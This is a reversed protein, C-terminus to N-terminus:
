FRRRVSPWLGSGESHGVISMALSTACALVVIGEKLLHRHGFFYDLAITRRRMIFEYHEDTQPPRLTPNSFYKRLNIRILIQIAFNICFLVLFWTSVVRTDNAWWAMILFAATWSIVMLWISRNGVLERPTRSPSFLQRSMALETKACRRSLYFEALIVLLLATALGHDALYREWSALQLVGDPFYDTVRYNWIFIKLLTLWSLLNCAADLLRLRNEVTGVANGVTESIRDILNGQPSLAEVQEITQELLKARAEIEAESLHSVSEHHKKGSNDTCRSALPARTERYRSLL